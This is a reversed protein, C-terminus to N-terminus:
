VVRFNRLRSFLRWASSNTRVLHILSCFLKNNLYYYFWQVRGGWGRKFQYVGRLYTSEVLPLGGMDYTTVGNEKAWEISKWVALSMPQYKDLARISGGQLIVLNTRYSLCLLGAVIRKELKAVFLRSTDKRHNFMEEFFLPPSTPYHNERSHLRHINYYDSWEQWTDAISVEVGLSEAKQVARRINRHLEKWTDQLSRNLDIIITRFPVPSYGEAEFAQKLRSNILPFPVFVSYMSKRKMRDFFKLISEVVIAETGGVYLPGGRIEYSDMAGLIKKRVFLVGGINKGKEQVLLFGPERNLSNALIQAWEYTQFADCVESQMLLDNWEKADLANMSTEEVRYV